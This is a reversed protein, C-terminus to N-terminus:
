DACRVPARSKHVGAKSPIHFRRYKHASRKNHDSSVALQDSNQAVNIRGVGEFIIEKLTM